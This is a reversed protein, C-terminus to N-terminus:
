KKSYNLFKIFEKSDAEGDKELLIISLQYLFFMILPIKIWGFIPRIFANIGGISSMIDSVQFFKIIYNRETYDAAFSIKISSNSYINALPTIGESDRNLVPSYIINKEIIDSYSTPIGFFSNKVVAGKKKIIEPTLRIFASQVTRRGLLHKETIYLKLTKPDYM